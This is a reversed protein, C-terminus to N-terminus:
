LQRKPTRSEQLDLHDSDEIEALRMQFHAACYHQTQQSGDATDQVVIQTTADRVCQHWWDCKM